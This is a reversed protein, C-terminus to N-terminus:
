MAAFFSLRMLLAVNKTESSSKEMGPSSPTNM